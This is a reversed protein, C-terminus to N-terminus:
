EPADGRALREMAREAQTACENGLPTGSSRGLARASEYWERRRADPEEGELMSGLNLAANAAAARGSPLGSARGRALATEYAKRAEFGRELALLAHGLNVQAMAAMADFEAEHAATAGDRVAALADKFARVAEELRGAQRHLHGILLQADLAIRTGVDVGSDRGVRVVEALGALAEASHGDHLAQFAHAYTAAAALARGTGSTLTRTFELSTEALARAEEWRELAGLARHLNCGAQGALERLVPDDLQRGTEFVHRLHVVAQERDGLEALTQGLRLNALLAFREAMGPACRDALELATRYHAAAEAHRGAGVAREGLGLAGQLATLVGEPLECDRGFQVARAYQREAEPAGLLGEQEAMAALALSAKACAMRGLPTGSPEGIRVVAGFMRRAREPDGRRALLHGLNFAAVAAPDWGAPSGARLGMELASEWSAVALEDEGDESQLLGLNFAAQTLMGLLQQSESDRGLDLAERYRARARLLEGAEQDLIGLRSLVGARRHRGVPDPFRFSRTVAREFHLVAEDHHGAARMREGLHLSAELVIQDGREGSLREGIALAERLQAVRSESDSESLAHELTHQARSALQEANGASAPASPSRRAALREFWRQLPALWSV